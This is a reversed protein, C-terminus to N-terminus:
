SLANVRTVLPLSIRAAPFCPFSSLWPWGWGRGGFDSLGQAGGRCRWNGGTRERRTEEEGELGFVHSAGKLPLQPAGPPPFGEAARAAAARRRSAGRSARPSRSRSWRGSRGRPRRWTWRRRGNKRRAKRGGQRPAHHEAAAPVLALDPFNPAPACPAM